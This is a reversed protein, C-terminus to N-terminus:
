APRPFLVEGRTVKHGTLDLGPLEDLAVPRPLALRECLEAMKVPMFPHLLTALTAV